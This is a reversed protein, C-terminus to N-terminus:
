NNSITKNISRIILIPNSSSDLKYDLINKLTPDVSVPSINTTPDLITTTNIFDMTTFLGSFLNTKNSKYTRYTQAQQSLYTSKNTYLQEYSSVRNNSVNNNLLSINKKKSQIYDQSSLTSNGNNLAAKGSNSLSSCVLSKSSM